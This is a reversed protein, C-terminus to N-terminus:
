KLKIQIYVWFKSAKVSLLIKDSWKYNSLFKKINTKTNEFDADELKGNDWKGFGYYGFTLTKESLQPIMKQDFYGPTFKDMEIKLKGMLIINEFSLSVLVKKLGSASKLESLKIQNFTSKNLKFNGIAILDDYYYGYEFFGDCKIGFYLGMTPRTYDVKISQMSKFRNFVGEIKSSEVGSLKFFILFESPIENNQHTNDKFGLATLCKFFTTLVGKGYSEEIKETSNVTNNDIITSVNTEGEVGNIHNEVRKLLEVKKLDDLINIANSMRISVDIDGTMQGVIMRIFDDKEALQEIYEGITHHEEKSFSEKIFDKYKIIM